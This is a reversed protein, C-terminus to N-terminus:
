GPRKIRGGRSAVFSGMLALAKKEMDTESLTPAPRSQGEDM